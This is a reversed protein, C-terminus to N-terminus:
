KTDANELVIYGASKFAEAIEKSYRNYQVEVHLTGREQDYLVTLLESTQPDEWGQEETITYVIKEDKQIRRIAGTTSRSLNREITGLGEIADQREYTTM